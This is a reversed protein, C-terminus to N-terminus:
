RKWLGTRFRQFGMPQPKRTWERGSVFKPWGRLDSEQAVSLSGATMNGVGLCGMWDHRLAM